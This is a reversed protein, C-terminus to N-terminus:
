PPPPISDSPALVHFTAFAGKGSSTHALVVYTGTPDTPYTQYTATVSGGPGPSHVPGTFPSQGPEAISFTVFDTMPVGSVKLEFSTGAPGSGPTVALALPLVPPIHLVQGVSLMDENTLHNLAAISDATVGFHQAISTLTDGPAVVYTIPPATTSTTTTPATVAV